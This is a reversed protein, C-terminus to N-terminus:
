MENCKVFAIIFFYYKGIINTSSGRFIENRDTDLINVVVIPQNATIGDIQCGPFM